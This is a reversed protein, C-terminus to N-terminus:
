IKEFLINFYYDYNYTKSTKEQNFRLKVSSYDSATESQFKTFKNEPKAITNNWSNVWRLVNQNRLDKFQIYLDLRSFKYRNIVNKDIYERVASNVDGNKTMETRLGDFTRYRKLSAFIYDSLISRLNINLIWTTNNEKQFSNQADDLVLTQNNKKSDPANYVNSDLSSEVSLDTQEGNRKQYYILSQSEVYISDEIELMKAGFFNSEETMNFTGYTRKNIFENSIYTRRM